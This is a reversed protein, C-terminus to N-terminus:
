ANGVGPIKLPAAFDARIPHQFDEDSNESNDRGNRDNLGEQLLNGVNSRDVRLNFPLYLAPVM